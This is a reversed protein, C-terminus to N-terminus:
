MDMSFSESDHIKMARVQMVQFLRQFPDITTYNELNALIKANSVANQEAMVLTQKVEVANIELLRGAEGEAEKKMQKVQQQMVALERQKGIAQTEREELAVRINALVEQTRIIEADFAVPLIVERLQLGKISVQLGKEPKQFAEQMTEFMRGTIDTRNTFFLDATFGSCAEVVAARAFRVFEDKYLNHPDDRPGGGLLRYLNKLASPELKWQFSISVLMELGDASRAKIPQRNIDGEQAGHQSSIVFYMNQFTSPYEILENGMGLLKMGPQVVVEDELEQSVWNLSLAYKGQELSKFSTPIAIITFILM